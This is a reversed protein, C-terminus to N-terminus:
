NYVAEWLTLSNPPFIMLSDKARDKLIFPFCRMRLQDKTLGQLPFTQVTAYFRILILPDENPIGYFSPLMTFHVNKLKYNRTADGLQIYSVNTGIIPRAYEKMVLQREGGAAITQNLQDTGDEIETPVLNHDEALRRLHERLRRIQNINDNALTLDGGLSHRGQM